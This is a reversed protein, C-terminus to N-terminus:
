MESEDSMGSHQFGCKQTPDTPFTGSPGVHMVVVPLRSGLWRQPNQASILGPDRTGILLMQSNPIVQGARVVQPGWIADLRQLEVSAASGSTTSSADAAGAALLVAVAVLGRTALGTHTRLTM